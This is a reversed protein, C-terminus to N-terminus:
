AYFAKLLQTVKRNCIPCRNGNTMWVKMACPYCCCIHTIKGHVFAGNKPRATCVICLSELGQTQQLRSDFLHGSGEEKRSKLKRSLISLPSQAHDVRVSMHADGDEVNDKTFTLGTVGEKL